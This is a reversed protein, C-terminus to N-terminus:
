LRRRPIERGKVLVEQSTELRYSEPFFHVMWLKVICWIQSYDNMDGTDGSLRNSLIEQAKIDTLGTSALQDIETLLPMQWLIGAVYATFLDEALGQPPSLAALDDQAAKFASSVMTDVGRGCYVDWLREPSPCQPVWLAAEQGEGAGYEVEPLRHMTWTKGLQEAQMSIQQHLKETAEVASDLLMSEWDALGPFEAPLAVLLEVNSPTHWGLGRLTLNASGVLTKRGNSYYKAHLHPHVLLRGGKVQTIDDFIELDCVGSVIDEPLWRTVCVCESVTSPIIKLLRRFTATKIYPAVIIVRNTANQVLELVADGPFVATMDNM